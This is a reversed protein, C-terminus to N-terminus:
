DGKHVRGTKRRDEIGRVVKDPTVPLSYFRVGVADYLANAVAPLTAVLPGEGAEKAGFPGEPDDAGVLICEIKPMQQPMPIKYDLLAPNMLRSGIYNM